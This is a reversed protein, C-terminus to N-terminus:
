KWDPFNRSSIVAVGNMIILAVLSAVLSERSSTLRGALALAILTGVNFLIFWQKKSVLEQLKKM